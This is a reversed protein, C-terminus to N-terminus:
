LTHIIIMMQPQIIQLESLHVFEGWTLIVSFQPKLTQVWARGVRLGCAESGELWTPNWPSFTADSYCVGQKSEKSGRRDQSRLKREWM